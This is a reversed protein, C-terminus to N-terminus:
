DFASSPPLPQLEMAERILEMAEVPNRFIEYNNVNYVEFGRYFKSVEEEEPRNEFLGRDPEVMTCERLANLRSVTTEIAGLNIDAGIFRRGLKMAAAQTTGSGMFCDLVVDGPNSGLQIVRELLQLPKQTPYGLREAAQSNILSIDNWFNGIPKGRDHEPRLKRFPKGNSTWGLDGAKDLAELKDRAMRWGSSPPMYGGYEYVMNPRDGMGASRVIPGDYYRGKADKYRYKDEIEEETLPVRIRDPFIKSGAGKGYCFITDTFVSMRSAEHQSGKPNTSRVWIIENIFKDPGFVEDLILRLRHSQHEDCHLFIVGSDSLLERILSIRDRCFQLYNDFNWIDTYQKEEFSTADSKTSRGRVTVSKKYDANSDYPPDIYCLDVKGRFER